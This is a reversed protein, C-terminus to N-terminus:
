GNRTKRAEREREFVFRVLMERDADLIAEIRVARFGERTERAVRGEVAIPPHGDSLRLRVWVTDGVRLSAPGAMLVGGASVNLTWTDVHEGGALAVTAPRVADARVHDRRQVRELEGAPAVRLLDPAGGVATAHGAVRFLGGPGTFAVTVPQAAVPHPPAAALGLVVAGDVSCSEVRARTRALLPGEVDVHQGVALRRM